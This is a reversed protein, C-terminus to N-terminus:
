LLHRLAIGRVHAPDVHGVIGVGDGALDALGAGIGVGQRGLGLPQLVPGLRAVEDVDVRGQGVHGDRLHQRIHAALLERLELRHQRIQRDRLQRRDRAFHRPQHLM